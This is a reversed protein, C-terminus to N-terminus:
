LLSHLSFWHEKRLWRPSSGAGTSLSHFFPYPQFKLSHRPWLLLFSLKLPRDLKHSIVSKSIEPRHRRSFPKMHSVQRLPIVSRKTQPCRRPRGQSYLDPVAVAKPCLREGLLADSPSPTSSPLAMVPSCPHPHHIPRPSSALPGGPSYM